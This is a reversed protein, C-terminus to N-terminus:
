SFNFPCPSFSASLIYDPVDQGRKAEKVLMGLEQEQTQIIRSLRSQQM